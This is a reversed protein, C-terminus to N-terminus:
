RERSAKVVRSLHAGDAGPVMLLYTGDPLDSIHVIPDSGAGIYHTRVLRMSEDYVGVQGPAIGGDYVTVIGDSTPNPYVTLQDAEVRVAIVKTLTSTGDADVQQLRYYNMGKAPRVDNLQYTHVASSTGAGAITALDEFAVGNTSRQVTFHDNNKETATIWDLRVSAGQQKGSFDLLEIPLTVHEYVSIRVHDVRATGNQAFAAVATGFSPDNIDAVTWTRGWLDIPGGYTVYADTTPWALGNANNTGGLTGAKALFVGQDLERARQLTFGLMVHRNVSGNFTCTPQETGNAAIAKHATQLCAGSTPAVSTNAFYIDTGETYGSNITYTDTGGDTIAPTTNNGEVVANVAMSGVLTTIAAGLQHPNAATLAGSTQLSSVPTLQDVNSFVASSFTECYEVPSYAGYTPVIATSSALAIDAELLMWAEVRASFAAGGGLVMEGVPTMARGGYTVGTLDRSTTGNEEGFVVILCRNTGASITRTLGSVWNDLLGVNQPSLTSREVEVQIGQIVGPSVLNFEFGNVRLYNTAGRASVTAYTNDSALVNGPATWPNLGVSADNFANSPSNPGFQAAAPLALVFFAPFCRRLVM